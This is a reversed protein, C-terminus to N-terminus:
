IELEIIELYKRNSLRGYTTDLNQRVKEIKNNGKPKLIEKRCRKTRFKKGHYGNMAYSVIEIIEAIFCLVTVEFYVLSEGCFYNNNGNQGINIYRLCSFM